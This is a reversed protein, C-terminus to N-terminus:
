VAVDVPRRDGRTNPTSIVLFRTEAAGPNFFRHALGPPVEVGQRAELDVNGDATQMQATGELVYFFQTATDHVHWEEGAGAPVREEIVSLGPSDLLRWGDSVEGWVYHDANTVDVPEPM